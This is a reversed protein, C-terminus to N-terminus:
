VPRSDYFSFPINFAFGPFGATVLVFGELILLITLKRGISGNESVRYLVIALVWCALIAVLGISGILAGNTM